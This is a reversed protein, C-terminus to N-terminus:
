SILRLRSAPSSVDQRCAKSTLFEGAKGAIAATPIMSNAIKM